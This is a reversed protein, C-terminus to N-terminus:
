SRVLSTVWDDQRPKVGVKSYKDKDRIWNRVFANYDKYTKGKSKAWDMAKDCLAQAEKVSVGTQKAVLEIDVQKRTIMTTLTRKSDVPQGNQQGVKQYAEYNTVTILRFKNNAQQVIQQENELYKLIREIKGGSIGTKKALSARSTIFQGRKCIGAKDKWIYKKDQHNALLLVVVWLALYEPKGAIPNNILKRHLAIWGDM